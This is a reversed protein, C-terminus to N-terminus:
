GPTTSRFTLPSTSPLTKPTGSNSRLTAVVSSRTRVARGLRRDPRCSRRGALRVGAVDIRGHRDGEFEVKRLTPVSSGVEPEIKGGLHLTVPLSSKAPLRQPKAWGRLFFQFEPVPSSPQAVGLSVSLVVGAALLGVFLRRRARNM